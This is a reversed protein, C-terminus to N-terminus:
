VGSPKLIRDSRACIDRLRGKSAEPVVRCWLVAAPGRYASRASETATDNGSALEEGETEVGWGDLDGSVM